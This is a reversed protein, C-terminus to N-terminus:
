WVEYYVSLVHEVNGLGNMKRTFIIKSESHIDKYVVM